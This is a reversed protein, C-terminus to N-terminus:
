GHVHVVMCIKGIKSNESTGTGMM